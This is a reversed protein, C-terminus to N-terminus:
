VEVPNEKKKKGALKTILAGLIAGVALGGVGIIAATISQIGSIISVLIGSLGLIKFLRIETKKDKTLYFIFAEWIKKM